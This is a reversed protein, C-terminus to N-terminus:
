AHVGYSIRTLEDEILWAGPETDLLELPMRGSLARSPRRLWVRAKVANQFTEEALVLARALRTVTASEEPSLRAGKSRRLTLTWRPGILRSVEDPSLAMCAALRDVAAPPFGKRVAAVLDLDSRVDRHLVRRGGLLEAIKAARATM